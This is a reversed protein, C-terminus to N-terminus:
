AITEFLAATVQNVRMPRPRLIRRLAGMLRENANDSHPMSGHGPCGTAVLRLHQIQKESVAIGFMPQDGMLGKFGGGGEDWIWEPSLEELHHEVLWRM